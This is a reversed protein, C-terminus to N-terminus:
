RWHFCLAYNILHSSCTLRLILVDNVFVCVTYNTQPSTRLSNGARGSRLSSMQKHAIWPSLCTTLWDGVCHDGRVLLFLDRGVDRSKFSEQLIGNHELNQKKSAIKRNMDKTTVHFIIKNNSNFISNSIPLIHLSQITTYRTCTILDIYEDSPIFVTIM